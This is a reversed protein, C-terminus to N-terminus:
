IDSKGGTLKAANIASIKQSWAQTPQIKKVTRLEDSAYGPVRINYNRELILQIDRLELTASQRLKALKCAAAIVNDVFEDAVDLLTEEVDPDLAEYGEGDVGGTVQRVLEELKKKSLVREGEGELVYGPHKQIGPQGMPGMAGTSPGGSLTPRSPGMSVPALPTINLSKPMPWKATNTAPERPISPHAHPNAQPTSQNVNPQSYSRAAQAMAAKHSLPHPGQSTPLQSSTPQPSHHHQQQSPQVGPVGINMPPQVSYTTSPIQANSSQPQPIQSQNVAFQGQPPATSPSISPTEVKIEQNRTTDLANNVPPPQTPPMQQANAQSVTNVHNPISNHSAAESRGATQMGQATRQRLQEKYQQQLNLFNSLATQSSQIAQQYQRQRNNITMKEEDTFPKGQSRRLNMMGSLESLAKKGKELQSAYSAYKRRENQMWVHRDEQSSQWLQPPITLDLARAAAKVQESFSEGTAVQTAPRYNPGNPIVQPNQQLQNAPQPMSPGMGQTNDQRYKQMQKQLRSSVEALTRHAAVHDPHNTDDQHAQITRWQNTIGNYYKLKMEESLCSLNQVQNPKILKELPPLAAQPGQGQPNMEVELGIISLALIIWDNQFGLAELKTADLVNRGDFVFSPKRMSIAVRTWDLKRESIGATMRMPRSKNSFEDWETVVVVADAGDCATYASTCVEVYHQLNERDGIDSMLEKWIQQEKVKPDYIAVRAKESVFNKVLTIAPSERTDSTNKKFAFGLVALKKDALNHYLCSIIRKTFRLKQYENRWYDAVEYLHLSESLYVINFIDKQFCSGGFGPGAKLMGPGIRSDLGCAYSVEEVNAGTAECIASLANVSSIRQALMANAALKSLEASWLNMTIIKDKPVWQSYVSALLAAAQNGSSTPMSGIIIRDPYLLDKVATGEALFEPNSLVDFQVGPRANASLIERISRATRCPVTSKEVIIKSRTSVRAITRTAAEVFSLDAGAGKGVGDSKTPTNVCVLILDAEDIAKEIDTSFFLSPQRSAEMTDVGLGYRGNEQGPTYGDSLTIGDRTAYVISDLGPEYIPLAMSNWAAIREPSIDVVTVMVDSKLAM